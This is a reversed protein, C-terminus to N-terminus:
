WDKLRPRRGLEALYADVDDRSPEVLRRDPYAAIGHEARIVMLRDCLTKIISEYLKEMHKDCFSCVYGANNSRNRTM